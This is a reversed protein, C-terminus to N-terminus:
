INMELALPNFASTGLRCKPCSTWDPNKKEERFGVLCVAASIASIYIALMREYENYRQKECFFFFFPSRYLVKYVIVQSLVIAYFALICFFFYSIYCTSM